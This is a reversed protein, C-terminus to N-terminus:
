TRRLRPQNWRSAPSYQSCITRQPSGPALNYSSALPAEPTYRRVTLGGWRGMAAVVHETVGAAALAQAGSDRWSQGGVLRNDLSQRNPNATASCVGRYHTGHSSQYLRCGVGFPMPACSTHLKSAFAVVRDQQRVVARFPCAPDSSAVCSCGHASRAGKWQIDQKSCPLLLTARRRMTDISAAAEIERLSCWIAILSTDEPGM